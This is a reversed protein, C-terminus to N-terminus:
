RVLRGLAMGVVTGCAAGCAYALQALRGDTKVATKTNQWWIWSLLGGSLFALLYHQQSILSVNAATCTVISFARWWINAYVTM